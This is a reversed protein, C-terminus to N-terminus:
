LDAPAPKPHEEQDLVGSRQDNNKQKRRWWDIVLWLLLGLVLLHEVITFWIGGRAPDWYSLPSYFRAELNFPFLLLPGDDYHVPIDIVTHIACALGFWFLPIGWRKDRRWALYGILTYLVVLIPAHFLNHATKVWPDHYFLTDFLYQTNSTIAAGGPEIDNGAIMDSAIFAITLLILPIDPAISGFLFAFTHTPPLSDTAGVPQGDAAPRTAEKNKLGRNIAAVIVLHSYTQM